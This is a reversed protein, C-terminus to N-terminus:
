YDARAPRTEVEGGVERGGGVADGDDGRSACAGVRRQEGGGGTAEEVEVEGFFGDTGFGAGTDVIVLCVDDGDGEAGAGCVAHGGEVGGRGGGGVDAVLRKVDCVIIQNDGGATAWVGEGGRADGGVREEEFIDGVGHCDAFEEEVEEFFGGQRGAGRGKGGGQEVDGDDAAPRRADLHGGLQVIQRM